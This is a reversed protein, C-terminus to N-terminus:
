SLNRVRARLERNPRPFNSALRAVKCTPTAQGERLFAARGEAILAAETQWARTMGWGLVKAAAGYTMPGHLSLADLYADTDQAITSRPAPPECAASQGIKRPHPRAVRAVQAVAPAPDPPPMDGGGLLKLAAYADFWM